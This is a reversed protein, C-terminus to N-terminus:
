AGRGSQESCHYGPILTHGDMRNPSRHAPPVTPNSPYGKRGFDLVAEYPQLIGGGSVEVGLSRWGRHRTALVRIPPKAITITQVVQWTGAVRQFVVLPCGGSGCQHQGTLFVLAERSGDGNLDYLAASYGTDPAQERNAARMLSDPIVTGNCRDAASAAGLSLLLLLLAALTKM